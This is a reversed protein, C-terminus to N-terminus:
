TLPMANIMDALYKTSPKEWNGLIMDAVEDIDIERKYYTMIENFRKKFPASKIIHYSLVEHPNCGEYEKGPGILQQMDHLFKYIDESSHSFPGHGCDHLIAAMRILDDKGALLPNNEPERSLAKLLRESQFLVGLTHEFRSHTASPFILYAFGTQKIRRLRQVLPTDIIALEHSKVFQTGWLADHIVKGSDETFPASHESFYEVVFNEIDTEFTSDPMAAPTRADGDALAASQAATGPSATFSKSPAEKDGRNPVVRKWFLGFKEKLNTGLAFLAPFFKLLSVNDPM